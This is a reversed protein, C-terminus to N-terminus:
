RSYVLGETTRPYLWTDLALSQLSSLKRFVKCLRGALDSELLKREEAALRAYTELVQRKQQRRVKKETSFDLLLTRFEAESYRVFLNEDFDPQEDHYHTPDWALEKVHRALSKQNAIHELRRLDSECLRLELLWFLHPTTVASFASNVLRLVKLHPFGLFRCIIHLIDPHWVTM